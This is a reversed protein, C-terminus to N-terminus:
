HGKPPPAFIISVKGDAHTTEEEISANVAQAVMKHLSITEPDIEPDIEMLVYHKGSFMSFAFRLLILDGPSLAKLERDLERSEDTDDEERNLDRQVLKALSLIKEVQPLNESLVDTM